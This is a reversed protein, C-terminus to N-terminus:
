TVVLALLWYLYKLEHLYLYKKWTLIFFFAFIDRNRATSAGLITLPRPEWM